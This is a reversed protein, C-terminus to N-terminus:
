FLFSQQGYAGELELLKKKAPLGGAYGTLSGDSGIVRHCPVIISIANAGNASAVARIAKPDGLNKSLGLYSETKGFPIQLLKGWVSIQFPTGLLRLPLEFTKRQNAFYAELQQITQEILPDHGKEMDADAISCLRQDISTRM